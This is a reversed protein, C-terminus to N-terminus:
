EVPRSDQDVHCASAYAITHTGCTATTEVTVVHQAARCMAAIGFRIIVEINCAPDLLVKGSGRSSSGEGQRNLCEAVEVAPDVNLVRKQEQVVAQGRADVVQQPTDGRQDHLGSSTSEVLSDPEGERGDQAKRLCRHGPLGPQQGVETGTM